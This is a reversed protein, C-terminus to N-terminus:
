FSFARVSELEYENRKFSVAFSDKANQVRVHNGPFVVQFLEDSSLDWVIWRSEDEFFETYLEFWIRGEVDVLSDRFYVEREPDFSSRLAMITKRHDFNESFNEPFFSKIYESLIEDSIEFPAPQWSVRQESILSGDIDFRKLGFRENSIYIFEDDRMTLSVRRGFPRNFVSISRDNEDVIPKIETKPVSFVPVPTDQDYGQFFVELERSEEYNFLSYGKFGKFYLGNDSLGLLQLSTNDPSEVRLNKIVNEMNPDFIQVRFLLPDYVAIKGSKPDAILNISQFEGPGRGTQRYEWKKEGEKTFKVLSNRMVDTVIFNGGKDMELFLMNGFGAEDPNDNISFLLEAYAMKELQDPSSGSKGSESSDFSCAGLIMIMLLKRMIMM